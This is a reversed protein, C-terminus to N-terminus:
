PKFTSEQRRPFWQYLSSSKVISDRKLTSPRRTSLLICFKQRRGLVYLLITGLFTAHYKMSSNGASPKAFDITLLFGFTALCCGMASREIPQCGSFLCAALLSICDPRATPRLWNWGPGFSTAPTATLRHGPSIWFISRWGFCCPSRSDCRAGLQSRRHRRSHPNSSHWISWRRGWPCASPAFIINHSCSLGIIFSVFIVRFSIIYFQIM